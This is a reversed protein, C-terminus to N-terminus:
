DLMEGEKVKAAALWDAELEWWWPCLAGEVFWQCGKSCVGDGNRGHFYAYCTKDEVVEGLPKQPLNVIIVAMM